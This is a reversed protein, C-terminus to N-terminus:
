NNINTRTSLILILVTTEGAYPEDALKHDAATMNGQGFSLDTDSQGSRELMDFERVM